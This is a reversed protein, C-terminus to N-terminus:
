TSMRKIEDLIECMEDESIEDDKIEIARCDKLQYFINEKMDTYVPLTMTKESSKTLSILKNCYFSSWQGDFLDSSLVPIFIGENILPMIERELFMENENKFKEYEYAELNRMSPTYNTKLSPHLIQVSYGKKRLQSAIKRCIKLKDKSCYLHVKNKKILEVLSNIVSIMGIEFNNDIDVTYLRSEDISRIFELEKQVWISKESNQSKCYLFVNRVSIERMIFEELESNNDDLCKLYFMLPDCNLAELIDRIKRIKEIDKHSHSLFVSIPKIM